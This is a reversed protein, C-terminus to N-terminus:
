SDTSIPKKYTAHIKGGSRKTSEEITADSILHFIIIKM